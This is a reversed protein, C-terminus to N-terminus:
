KSPVWKAISAPKFWKYPSKQHAETDCDIDRNANVDCDIDKCLKIKCRVNQANGSADAINFTRYKFTRTSTPQAKLVDAYCQGKILSIAM